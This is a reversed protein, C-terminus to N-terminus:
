APVSPGDRRSGPFKHKIERKRSATARLRNALKNHARAIRAKLTGEPVGARVAAQKTSLGEQQRLQLVAREAPRLVAMLRIVLERLESQQVAQEPNPKSDMFHKLLTEKNCISQDELPLTARRARARLQMRACNIVIATMWTSMQSRGEFREIHRFALLMADQVADEADDPNNLCRMAIRRFRPLSHSLIDEFERQRWRKSEAGSDQGVQWPFVSDLTTGPSLM